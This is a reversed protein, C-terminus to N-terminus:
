ASGFAEVVLNGEEAGERGLVIRACAQPERIRDQIMLYLPVLGFGFDKEDSCAFEPVCRGEVPESDDLNRAAFLVGTCL